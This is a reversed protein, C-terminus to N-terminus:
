TRRPGEKAVRLIQDTVYRNLDGKREIFARARARYDVPDQDLAAALTDSASDAAELRTILREREQETVYAYDKDIQVIAPVGLMVSESAVTISEGCSLRCFSLLHHFHSPDGRFRFPELDDPLAGEASLHVKGRASLFAVMDRLRDAGIGSRGRDHAANWAVTRVLFNDCGPEWGAARAIEPSPTFHDPHLFALQKGGPFRYTRHKAEAGQWSEPIHWEDIFPLTLRTQLSAHETDYFAIAPVGTLAGVHSISVGGFGVLVDPRFSRVVRLLRLDRTVLERALSLRGAAARSLVVHDLGLSDLLEGLIDKDRSVVRVAAGEARLMQIPHYFFLADAPHVLEVLVTTGRMTM